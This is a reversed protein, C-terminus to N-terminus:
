FFLKTNLKSKDGDQDLFVTQVLLIINISPATTPFAQSVILKWIIIMNVATEMTTSM